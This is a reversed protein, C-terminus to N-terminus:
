GRLKTGSIALITVISFEGAVKQYIKENKLLEEIKGRPYGLSIMMDDYSSLTIDESSGSESKDNFSIQNFADVHIEGLGLDLFLKPLKPAIHMDIGAAKKQGLDFQTLADRQKKKIYGDGPVFRCISDEHIIPEIALIQGGPKTVRIMESLATRPDSLHLLLAQCATLDCSDSEESLKYIDAVEYNINDPNDELAAGILESSADVGKISLNEYLSKILCTLFGVGCGVDLASLPENISINRHVFDKYSDSLSKRSSRLYGVSSAFM